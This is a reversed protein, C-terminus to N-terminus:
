KVDNIMVHQLLLPRRQAFQQPEGETPCFLSEGAKSSASTATLCSWRCLCSPCGCPSSWRRAWTNTASSLGPAWPAGHRRGTSSCTTAIWPCRPCMLTVLWLGDIHYHDVQHCFHHTIIYLCHLHLQWPGSEDCFMELNISETSCIYLWCSFRNPTQVHHSLEPCM